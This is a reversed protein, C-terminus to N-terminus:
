NADFPALEDAEARGDQLGALSVENKLSKHIRLHVVKNDGFRVQRALALPSRTLAALLM